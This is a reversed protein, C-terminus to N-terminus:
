ARGEKTTNTSRNMIKKIIQSFIARAPLWRSAPRPAEEELHLRRRQAFSM